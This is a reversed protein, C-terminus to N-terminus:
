RTLLIAWAGVYQGCNACNIAGSESPLKFETSGCKTCARYKRESEKVDPQGDKPKAHSM